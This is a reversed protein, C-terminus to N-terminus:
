RQQGRQRLYPFCDVAPSHPCLDMGPDTAGLERLLAATKPYRNLVFGWFVGDGITLPTWGAVNRVDLAAGREVLFQVISNAGRLAGGHLATNGNRDVANIDVSPGGLALAVKVAELAEAESGPSEGPVFVGVGAAAMLPTTGEDNALLPDAGNAALLRMLDVDTAKAALLFPTAGIRNMKNRNGDRPERKQRANPNAGADLLVKAFALSDINGTQVPPPNAYGVNPRRTWALQHLPSWGPREDNPDAGRSLLFAGLEYHANIVALHLASTRDPLTEDVPAGADLLLRVAEIHGGRVAFLLATFGGRSRNRSFGAVEPTERETTTGSEGSRATIDAGKHLLLRMAAVNNAAAAWMLATQRRWNETANPNAGHALLLGVVEPRGNRAATMLVTQGDTSATNPDAGATLLAEVLVPNANTCALELPTVGYRTRANVDAGAAILRRATEVDDRHVALHLATTGDPEAAVAAQQGTADARVGAAFAPAAARMAFLVYLAFLFCCSALRRARGM